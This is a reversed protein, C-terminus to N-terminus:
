RINIGVTERIYDALSAGGSPTGKDPIEILLPTTHSKRFTKVTEKSLDFLSKNMLIIAIDSDKVANELAEAVSKEDSAMVGDIGAFRLGTATDSSNSILFLRM